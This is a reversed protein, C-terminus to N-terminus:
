ERLPWGAREFDGDRVGGIFARWEVPNFMLVPGQRDKSDRVAVQDEVFAVEVCGNNGSPSSKRWAARSLDVMLEKRHTRARRTTAPRASSPARSRPTWRRSACTGSCSGVARSRMGKRLSSTMPRTRWTVVDEGPTGFGFIVFSGDMGAHEGAAFRLIQLVVNPREIWELLRELQHRMVAVSGVPRRLVAEDLVVHLEPPDPRTLLAQQKVRFDIRGEV